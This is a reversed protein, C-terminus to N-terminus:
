CFDEKLFKHIEYFNERYGPLSRGELHHKLNFDKDELAITKKITREKKSLLSVKHSLYLAEDIDHTVLVITPSYEQWLEILFSYLEEKQITDLHSFPEDLLILDARNLFARLLNFKQLTGGSLHKPHKGLYEDLRFRRLLPMAEEISLPTTLQLNKEISMWSFFADSQFVFAVSSNGTKEIRGKQLPILGSIIKLLLSKGAGTSGILTHIDGQQVELNLNSLVKTQDFQHDINILSLSNNM